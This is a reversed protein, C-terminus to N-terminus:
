AKVASKRSSRFKMLGLASLASGLLMMTSGGDPVAVNGATFGFTTPGSGASALVFSGTTDSYTGGSISLMGVGHVTLSPLTLGGGAVYASSTVSNLAFSYTNGGFVFTWLPNTGSYSPSFTFGGPQFTVTTGATGTYSGTPALGAAGNVVTTGGFSTVATSNFTMTGGDFNISGNIPVASATFSLALGLIGIILQKKM